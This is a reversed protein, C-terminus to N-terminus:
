RGATPSGSSHASSLTGGGSVTHAKVGRVGHPGATALDAHQSGCPSLHCSVPCAMVRHPCCLVLCQTGPHSGVRVSPSGSQGVAAGSGPAVYWPEGEGKEGEAVLPDQPGRARRGEACGPRRGWEWAQVWGLEHSLELIWTCSSNWAGPCVLCAQCPGAQDQKTGREGVAWVGLGWSHWVLVVWENM